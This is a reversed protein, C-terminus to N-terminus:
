DKSICNTFYFYFFLAVNSIMFFLHGYLFINLIFLQVFYLYFLGSVRLEIIKVNQIAAAKGAAKMIPNEIECTYRGADSTKLNAIYLAHEKSIGIREDEVIKVGNKKWMYKPKPYQNISVSPAIAIYSTGINKTSYQTQIVNM